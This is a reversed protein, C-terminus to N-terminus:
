VKRGTICYGLITKQIDEDWEPSGRVLEVVAHGKFLVLVRDCVAALEMIETSFLLVGTSGDKVLDGVIGYVEAKAGVDIGKTPENM